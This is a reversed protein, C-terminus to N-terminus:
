VKQTPKIPRGGRTRQSPDGMEFGSFESHLAAFHSGFVGGEFNETVLDDELYTPSTTRYLNRIKPDMMEAWPPLIDTAPKSQNKPSDCFLPNQPTNSGKARSHNKDEPGWDLLLVLLLLWLLTLLVLWLLRPILRLLLFLSLLSILRLLPFMFRWSNM